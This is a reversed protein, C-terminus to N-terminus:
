MAADPRAGRRSRVAGDPFPRCRASRCTRGCATVAIVPVLVLEGLRHLELARGCSAVTRTIPLSSTQGIDTRRRHRGVRAAVLDRRGLARGAPPRSGALRRRHGRPASACSAQSPHGCDRRRRARGLLVPSRVAGCVDVYWGIRRAVHPSHGSIRTRGGRHSTRPTTVAGRSGLGAHSQPTPRLPGTINAMHGVVPGNQVASRLRRGGPGM